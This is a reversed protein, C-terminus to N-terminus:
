AISSLVIAIVISTAFNIAIVIGISRKLLITIASNISKVISTMAM